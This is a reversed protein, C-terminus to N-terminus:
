GNKVVKALIYKDENLSPKVKVVTYDATSPDPHGNAGITPETNHWILSTETIPLLNKETVLIAEYDALNVGFDVTNSQGGSLSINGEFEVVDEYVDETGDEEYYVTPPVTSEDTYVVIKNGVEDLKYKTERGKYLAYHLTQKNRNLHRM